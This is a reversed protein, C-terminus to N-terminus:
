LPAKEKRFFPRVIGHRTALEALLDRHHADRPPDTSCHLYGYEEDDEDEDLSPPLAPDLSETLDRFSLRIIGPWDGSILKKSYYRQYKTLGSDTRLDDNQFTFSLKEDNDEFAGAQVIGDRIYRPKAVRRLFFDNSTFKEVFAEYGM